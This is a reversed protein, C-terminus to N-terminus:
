AGDGERYHYILAIGGAIVIAIVILAIMVTGRIADIAEMLDQFEEQDWTDGKMVVVVVRDQLTLLM